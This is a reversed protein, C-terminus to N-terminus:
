SQSAMAIPRVKLWNKLMGQARLKPDPKMIAAIALATTTGIHRLRYNCSYPVFTPIWEVIIPAALKSLM